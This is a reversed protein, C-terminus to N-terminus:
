DRFISGAKEVFPKKWGPFQQEFLENKDRYMLVAKATGGEWVNYEPESYLNFFDSLRNDLDAITDEYNPDTILNRNEDPDDTLHYLENPTRLFRKVYKWEPTRIARTLIYEFYTENKWEVENGLLVQHFSKGPTNRITLKNLGTYDLLTPLVDYLNIMEAARKGAGIKGAHRVIFPIRMNQDYAVAPLAQSSNGWLGHQGYAAGQDSTFIILTDEDLDLKEISAHIKGVGDDIMSTESAVTLM